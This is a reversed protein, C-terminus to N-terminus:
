QLSLILNHVNRFIECCTKGCYVYLITQCIEIINYYTLKMDRFVILACPSQTNMPLILDSITICGYIYIYIISASM